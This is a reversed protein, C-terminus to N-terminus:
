LSLNHILAAKLTTSSTTSGAVGINHGIKIDAFNIPLWSKSYYKTNVDTEVTVNTSTGTKVQLTTSGISLVSGLGNITTQISGKLEKVIKKAEKKHQKMAKVANTNTIHKAIITTSSGSVTGEVKVQDGVKFATLVAKGSFKTTADTQVTWTGGWLNLTFTNGSVSGVQGTAHVKGTTKVMLTTHWPMKASTTAVTTTASLTSAIGIKYKDKNKAEVSALPSVLLATALLATAGIKPLTTM